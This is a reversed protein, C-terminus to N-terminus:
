AIKPQALGRTLEVIELPSQSRFRSGTDGGRSDSLVFQVSSAFLLSFLQGHRVRLFIQLCCRVCVSYM